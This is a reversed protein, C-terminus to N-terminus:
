IRRVSNKFRIFVSSDFYQLLWSGTIGSGFRLLMLLFSKAKANSNIDIDLPSMSYSLGTLPVTVSVLFSGTAFAM